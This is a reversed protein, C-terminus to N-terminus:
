FTNRDPDYSVGFRSFIGSFNLCSPSPSYFFFICSNTLENGSFSCKLIKATCDLIEVSNPLSKVEYYKIFDLM